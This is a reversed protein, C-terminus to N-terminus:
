AVGGGDAAAEHKKQEESVTENGSVLGKSETENLSAKRKGM